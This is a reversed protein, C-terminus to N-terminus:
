RLMGMFTTKMKKGLLKERNLRKIMLQHMKKQVKPSSSKLQKFWVDFFSKRQVIDYWSLKDWDKRYDRKMQKLAHVQADLEFDTFNVKDFRKIIAPNHTERSKTLRKNINQNHLTDNLWHSLEHYITGKISSASMEGKFREFTNDDDFNMQLKELGMSLILEVVNHNLSLSVRADYGTRKPSYSSGDTFVGSHIYVPNLKHAEKCKKSKLMHSSDFGFAYAMGDEHKKMLKRFVKIDKKNFTDIVKKFYKKYILDVDAGIAFTKETILYKKFRM